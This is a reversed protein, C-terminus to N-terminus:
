LRYTKKALGYAMEGIMERADHLEIIHRSV